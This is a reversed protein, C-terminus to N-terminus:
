LTFSTYAVRMNNVSKKKKYLYDKITNELINLSESPKMVSIESEKKIGLSNFSTGLRLGSNKTIIWRDHIPHNHNDEPISCFTITTFPPIEDSIKKWYKMYEDQVNSKKGDVSGIIDIELELDLEKIIQLVVIDQKSFYPDAIIIFEEVEEVLWKRIFNMAEERTGPNVALNTSFHNDIFFDRFPKKEKTKRRHSILEVLKTSQVLKIFHNKHLKSTDHEKNKSKFRKENNTLYYLFVPFTEKLPLKNGIELYKYVESAKKHTVMGTNLAGLTKVVSQIVARYNNKEKEELSQNNKIKSTIVLNDYYDKLLDTNRKGNTLQILEKAFKDDLRYMTDIINKQYEYMELGKDFDNTMTYADSVVKKWETKNVEFMINSIESVRQVYEFHIELKNLEALIREFLESKEKLSNGKKRFPLIELLNALVFIRDSINSIGEAQSIYKKINYKNNEINEIRVKSLIKYGDHKINKKDPLKKDVIEELKVSIDKLQIKNIKADNSNVAKSVEEILGHIAYDDELLGIIKVAKLIDSFSTDYRNVNGEYIEFPNKKSIYFEAINQLAELKLSSNLSNVLETAIDSNFHHIIILSDIVGHNIEERAIIGQTLPLVHHDYIKKALDIKKCNICNISLETWLKLKETESPIRDVLEEIIKVEKESDIDSVMMGNFSKIVLRLSMIYTNAIPQSDIWSNDKIKSTETFINNSFDRDIDSLESAIIFGTDIKEWDAEINNWLNYISKKIEKSLRTKWKENKAIIGYFMLYYYVMNSPPENKNKLKNSFYFLEKITQYHLNKSNNFRELVNKLAINKPIESCIKEEIIKLFKLNIHKLNNDLYSDLILIKSKDRHFETNILDSIKLAFIPNVKSITKIFDKSMKYHNATSSFLEESLNLINIYLFKCKKVFLSKHMIHLKAYVESYCELKILTDNLNNIESIIKDIVPIAKEKNLTYQTHFINLQYIYKDKSLGVDKFNSEFDKFRNLIEKKKDYKKVYALQYSLDKVIELTLDESSSILVLEDLAKDIVLDINNKHRTNNNLWLRLLKLKEKSDSLKQVEELVKIATYNGVLFTIARNIKKVSPNNLNSLANLRRNEENKDNESSDIAAISLKAVIWDNIDKESANGSSNEIMEIALNPMAYILDSVIDYITNGVSSLDVNSYLEQILNILEEDVKNKEEKQKRAILALLKLRDVKLVASNALSISGAFDNLSIRAMIESEWFMYSDLENIISGQLSFRCVDSYSKMHEAARFGIEVSENVPKITEMSNLTGILFEENIIPPIESWLRDKEYLKVLMLKSKLSDESAYYKMLVDRVKKTNARLINKFYNKHANSIFNITKNQCQLVPLNNIRSETDELKINIIQSIKEITFSDISLALISLVINNFSDDLKIGECDLEIWNKYSTSSNIDKLEYGNKLLRKLTNLRGPYGKTVNYLDDIEYDTASELNLYTKIEHTSFGTLSISKYNVKKLNNNISIYESQKGTILIRFYDDGIPLLDFLETIFDRNSETKDELGDIILYIVEDGKKLKKKLNFLHSHYDEYGVYKQNEIENIDIGLFYKVQSIVNSFYFDIRYDLTTLPNFFVSISNKFNKKCFLANLTTKGSDEGGELFIIKNQNSFDSEIQAIYNSRKIISSEDLKPFGSSFFTSNIVNTKVTPLGNKM